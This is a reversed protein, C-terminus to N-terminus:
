DEVLLSINTIGSNWDAGRPMLSAPQRHAVPAFGGDVADPQGDRFLLWEGQIVKAGNVM